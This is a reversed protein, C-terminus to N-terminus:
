LLLGPPKILFLSALFLLPFFVGFVLSLVTVSEVASLYKALVCFEKQEQRNERSM